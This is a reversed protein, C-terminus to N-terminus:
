GYKDSLLGFLLGGLLVGWQTITTIWGAQVTSIGLSAIISSLAFSMFNFDM